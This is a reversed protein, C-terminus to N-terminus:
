YKKQLRSQKNVMDEGGYITESDGTDLKSCSQRLGRVCTTTDSDYTFGSYGESLTLAACISENDRDNVSLPAIQQNIDLKTIQNSYARIRTKGLGLPM